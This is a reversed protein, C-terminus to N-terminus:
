LPSFPLFSFLFLLFFLFLSSFFPLSFPVFSCFTEFVVSVGTSLEIGAEVDPKAERITGSEAL